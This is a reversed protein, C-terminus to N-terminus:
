DHKGANVDSEADTALRENRVNRRRERRAPKM